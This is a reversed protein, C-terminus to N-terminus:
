GEDVGAIREIDLRQQDDLEVARADLDVFQDAADLRNRVTTTRGGAPNRVRFGLAIQEPGAALRRKRRDPADRGIIEAHVAGYWAARQRFGERADALKRLLVTEADGVHKVGAVAIQMGQDEVVGVLGALHLPRFGEAGVDQATADLKAADQGAFMADADLLAIQHRFHEALDIEILLLPQFAREIRVAQEIGSFHKRYQVAAGLEAAHMHM